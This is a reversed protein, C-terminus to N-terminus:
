VERTRVNINLSSSAMVSISKGLTIAKRAKRLGGKMQSGGVVKMKQPGLPGGKCGVVEKAPVLLCGYHKQGATRVGQGM